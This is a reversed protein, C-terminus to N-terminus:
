AKKKITRSKSKRINKKMTRRNSKRIIKKKITRKSKGGGTFPKTRAKIASIAVYALKNRYNKVLKLPIEYPNYYMNNIAGIITTPVDEISINTYNPDFNGDRKIFDVLIPLKKYM